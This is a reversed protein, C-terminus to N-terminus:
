SESFDVIWEARALLEDFTVIEPALVNRRYLEFSRLKDVHHGGDPGLFEKLSGIILFSRPQYLYTWDNPIEVGGEGKSALRSGIDSVASHVTAHVQNVGGSLDRSPAWTGPRYFQDGLLKTNATKIEAFVMSRIVGGTRLLADVRKGSANISYGSVIQELKESSWSTLLQHSLGVGLIWPHEEFLNQWVAEEGRVDLRRRESDFYDSDDLLRRFRTVAARRGAVAVIDTASADQEIIARLVDPEVGYAALALPDAVVKRIADDDIRETSEGEIPFHGLNRILQCLKQADRSNLHFVKCAQLENSKNMQIRQIWLDKIHDAERAVLLKIQSRGAPSQCIPWVAGNFEVEIPDHGDDDFVKYFFRAPAGDDESGPRKLPFSRSAYTHDVKRGQMWTTEDSDVEFWDQSMGDGQKSFLVGKPMSKTPSYTSSTPAGTAKYSSHTVGIWELPCPRYAELRGCLRKRVNILEDPADWIIEFASALADLMGGSRRVYSLKWKPAAEVCYGDTRPYQLVSCM